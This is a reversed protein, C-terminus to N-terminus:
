LRGREIVQAEAFQEIVAAPISPTELAAYSGGFKRGHQDFAAWLNGRVYLGVIEESANWRVSVDSAQFDAHRSGVCIAGRAQRGREKTLDFLYFYGGESDFEFIGALDGSTRVASEFIDNEM